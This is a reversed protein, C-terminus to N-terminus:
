RSPRLSIAFRYPTIRMKSSTTVPKRSAKPPACSYKPTVGSRHRWRIVSVDKEERVGLFRGGRGIRVVIVKKETVLPSDYREAYRALEEIVNLM